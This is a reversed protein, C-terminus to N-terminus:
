KITNLYFKITPTYNAFFGFEYNLANSLRDMDDGLVMAMRPGWPMIKFSLSTSLGLATMIHRVRSIDGPTVPRDLKALKCKIVRNPTLQMTQLTKAFIGNVDMEEKIYIYISDGDSVLRNLPNDLVWVWKCSM